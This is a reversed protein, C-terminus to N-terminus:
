APDYSIERVGALDNIAEAHYGWAAIYINAVEVEFTLRQPPTAWCDVATRDVLYSSDPTTGVTAGLAWAPMFPVGGVNLTAWRGAADGDANQPSVQPFIPRGTSDVADALGTYLGAEAFAADFRFGGRAFQLLALYRRMEAVLTAHNAGGGVTFTGLSTPSAADLMTVIAAELTEYWDRLIRQWIIDGVGPTGGMDWTERSIKVKGSLAVPTVSQLTTTYKGSGPEVGETHTAVMPTGTVPGSATNFKPWQFPQIGNPPTGRSVANFIPYQFEREDIYRPLNITPNLENVDTSVVDFQAQMFTLVRDYAAQDRHGPHVARVFDVGFDHAAPALVGNRDFRYSAPETVSLDLRRTPDVVTPREVDASAEVTVPAPAPPTTQALMAQVQDLSFMVPLPEAAPAVVESTPATCAVGEAHVQGCVSCPMQEGQTRSAAVSTVRADDFVPMPTLSVERLDARRVLLTGRNRPDPATDAAADFDVGVSLGDLVGDEALLLAEDGQEGRAIKFEVKLGAPTDTLKTAVGIAAGHERLLKVRSADGFQLSGREFRFKQGFKQGVRGYPLALGKIKRGDLDVAFETVEIDAFTLKGEDDFTHAARRAADILVVTAEEPEPQAGAPLPPMGEAQRIEDDTIVTQGRPTSYIAWRDVPNPLLYETTSFRVTYGRRTVDGMSLRDTVARMYPSLVDNIRNRRRDVDNQYTRSTTSVGLDESDLGFLNAIEVSVQRQLEVLQLQQPSPSDVSHYNASLPVWATGRNKREAKWQALFVKVEDDDVPDAGEGPTFYDLPRPDDAYMSAARDLLIARRIARGGHKLVAPNPSDFRVVESAPVPRGDVWVAADRPDLQSPLPSAQRDSPPTLSVQGVDLHRVAVPFGAFDRALVLWWSISEFLLDEVTQSITVVNPVDLDLQRLLASPTVTNDPGVQELPMTAIACIANRGQIVAPVSLAETRSVITGGQASRLEAFM